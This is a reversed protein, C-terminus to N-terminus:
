QFAIENPLYEQLHGTHVRQHQTLHVRQNYSKGCEDCRFPKEGTHIRQHQILHASQIFSKGCENCKHPREGTSSKKHVYTVESFNIRKSSPQGLIEKMPVGQKRDLKGAHEHGEGFDQVQSANRQIRGSLEVDAESFESIKKKVNLKTNKSRKDSCRQSKERFHRKLHEILHSHRGFNKGCETCGYPREGSHVSHHQVLHSSVRFAKGCVQCKYPKEGTHVRQHQTLHVRQNYSKGCEGCKFPKEGTHIRRHQIFNSAQLFFKGCDNCKHGREGSTSTNQKRNADTIAGLDRKQSSNQRSKGVTPNVQWREVMGHLDSVEGFGQSQPVNRETSASTMWHAEADDSIQKVTLEVNDNRSEYDMSPISGYNEKRDDRYLSKQSQDLHGWEELIFSVAVDAVDEIKVLKQSGASLLSATLEQSDKLPLPPVQLAPLANEELLHPKQPEQESPPDVSLLQHSPSEQVVGPPVMKQPLVEPCVVIQQRREELERQINEVVAVAEEGSEPHHDRVWTQFEEPLITLFQELVLLELIQEKTHLEPRLWECCLVRLQSLAERPGSAEHYQFHRFRQYFTEFVPPNYQQMWTCDEEEVKVILLDEQEQSTEAPPDLDIVEGSETMIM